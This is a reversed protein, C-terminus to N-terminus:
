KSIIEFSCFLFLLVYYFSYYSMNFLVIKDLNDAM